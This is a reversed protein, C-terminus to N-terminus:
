LKPLMFDLGDDAGDSIRTSSSRASWSEEFASWKSAKGTVCDRLGREQIVVRKTRRLQAGVGSCTIANRLTM